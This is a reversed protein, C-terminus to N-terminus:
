YARARKISAGVEAYGQSARKGGAILGQVVNRDVTGEAVKTLNTGFVQAGALGGAAQQGIQQAKGLKESAGKVRGTQELGEAIAAAAPSSLAENVSKVGSSAANVAASFGHAIGRGASVVANGFWKGARKTTNWADSFFGM